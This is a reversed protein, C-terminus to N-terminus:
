LVIASAWPRASTPSGASGATARPSTTACRPAYSTNPTKRAARGCFIPTEWALARFSTRNDGFADHQLLYDRVSGTSFATMFHFLVAMM